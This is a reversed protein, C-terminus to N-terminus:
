PVILGQNGMVHPLKFGSTAVLLQGTPGRGISIRTAAVLGAKFTGIFGTSGISINPSISLIHIYIYIHKVQMFISYNAPSLKQPPSTCLICTNDTTHENRYTKMHKNLSSEQLNALCCSTETNLFPTMYQLSGKQPSQRDKVPNEVKGAKGKELFSFWKFRKYIERLFLVKTQLLFFDSPIVTTGFYSNQM